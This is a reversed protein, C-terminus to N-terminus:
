MVAKRIWPVLIGQDASCPNCNRNGTRTVLQVTWPLLALPYLSKKDRRLAPQETCRISSVFENRGTGRCVRDHNVKRFVPSRNEIVLNITGRGPECAGTYATLTFSRSEQRREEARSRRRHGGRFCECQNTRLEQNIAEGYGPVDVM